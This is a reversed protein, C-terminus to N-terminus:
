VAYAPLDKGINGPLRDTGNEITLLHLLKLSTPTEDGFYYCLTEM